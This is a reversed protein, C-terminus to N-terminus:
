GTHHAEALYQVFLQYLENTELLTEHTGIGNVTGDKVVIIQDADRITSLDHAIVITSRGKMLHDMAVQVSKETKSDLSAMAEDLLLFDANRLLARAIAIRQRQGGSLNTGGEGVNTDFGQPADKIFELAHASEAAQRIELDSVERDVGYVINDRITGSLLPSDQAVYSFMGRWNKLHFEEIPTDGFRIQGDNPEYFQQVLSLITSKGSGSPGVIATTKGYPITFSLNDLVQEDADYSFKVQDFVLDNKTEEINKNKIYTELDGEVLVSIRSTAGQSQKVQAYLLGFTELIGWLMGVYMFFAIWVDLTIAQISILYIGFGIVFMDQLLNLLSNLPNQIWDAVARRFSAKYYYQIKERGRENEKQEMAFSKILPVNSLLEAFFQTLTSLRNHTLKNTRYKWKGYWINSGAYIPIYILVGAALRWDYTFLIVVVGIMSYSAAIISPVWGALVSSITATDNATRSVMENPKVKDFLSMPSRMLRQWILNRYSIDVKYMVIKNFYGIIGSSITKSFIVIVTGFIVMNELNGAMVKQAYQPFILSLTSDGVYLLTLFILWGWPLKAKFILRIYAKWIGKENQKREEKTTELTDELFCGM